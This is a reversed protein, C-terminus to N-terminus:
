NIPICIYLKNEHGTFWEFIGVIICFALKLLMGYKGRKKKSFFQGIHEPLVLGLRTVNIAFHRMYSASCSACNESCCLGLRTTKTNTTKWKEMKANVM